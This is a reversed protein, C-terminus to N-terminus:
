VTFLSDSDSKTKTKVLKEVHAKLRKIMDQERQYHLRKEVLSYLESVAAEDARFVRDLNDRRIGVSEIVNWMELLPTDTNTTAGGDFANVFKAVSPQAQFTQPITKIEKEPITEVINTQKVQNKSEHKKNVLVNSQVTDVNKIITNTSSWPLMRELLSLDSAATFTKTM